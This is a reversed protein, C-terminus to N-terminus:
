VWIQGNHAFDQNISNICTRNPTVVLGALPNVEPIHSGLGKPEKIGALACDEAYTMFQKIRM